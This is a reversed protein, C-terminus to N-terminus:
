SIFIECLELQKRLLPGEFVCLGVVEALQSLAVPAEGSSHWQQLIVPLTHSRPWTLLMKNRLLLLIETGQWSGECQKLVASVEPM